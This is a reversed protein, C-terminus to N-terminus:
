GDILGRMLNFYARAQIEIDFCTLIRDLSYRKFHRLDTICRKLQQYAHERDMEIIPLFDCDKHSFQTYDVQRTAGQTRVICGEPGVLEANGSDDTALIACGCSMAELLANSCAEYYSTHIFIDCGEMLTMLRQRDLSTIKDIRVIEYGFENRHEELVEFWESGGLRRGWADQPRLYVLIRLNNHPIDSVGSQVVVGNYIVTSRKVTDTFHEACKQSFRSQYVVYDALNCKGVYLPRDKVIGGMGDMRYLIPTGRKQYKEIRQLPTSHAADYVVDLHPGKSLDFRVEHGNRILWQRLLNSFRGGGGHEKLVTAEKLGMGVRM